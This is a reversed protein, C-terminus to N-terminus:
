LRENHGVSDPAAHEPGPSLWMLTILCWHCGLVAPLALASGPASMQHGWLAMGIIARFYVGEHWVTDAVEAGRLCLACVM